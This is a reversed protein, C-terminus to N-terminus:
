YEKLKSIQKKFSSVRVLKNSYHIKLFSKMYLYSSVAMRPIKRIFSLKKIVSQSLVCFKRPGLLGTGGNNIIM